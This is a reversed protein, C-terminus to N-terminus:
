HYRIQHHSKHKRIQHHKTWPDYLVVGDTGTSIKDAPDNNSGWWNYRADLTGNESYVQSDNPDNNIIRNENFSRPTTNGNNYIAGGESTATNHKFTSRTVNLTGENYIAGGNTANNKIF